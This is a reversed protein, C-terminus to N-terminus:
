FGFNNLYIDFLLRSSGRMTCGEGLRSHLQELLKIHLRSRSHPTRRCQLLCIPLLQQSLLPQVWGHLPPSVDLMCRVAQQDVVDMPLESGKSLHGCGWGGGGGRAGGGSWVWAISHDPHLVSKRRRPYRVLALTSPPPPTPVSV